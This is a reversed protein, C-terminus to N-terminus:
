IKGLGPYENLQAFYRLRDPVWKSKINKRDCWM